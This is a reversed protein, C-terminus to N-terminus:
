PNASFDFQFGDYPCWGNRQSNEIYFMRQCSPCTVWRFNASDVRTQPVSARTAIDWSLLGIVVGLLVILGAKYLM